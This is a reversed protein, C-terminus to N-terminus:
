DDKGDEELHNQEIEEITEEMATKFDSWLEPTIPWTYGKRTPKLEGSKDEFWERQEFYKKGGKEVIRFRVLKNGTKEVETITTEKDWFSSM